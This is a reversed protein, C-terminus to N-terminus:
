VDLLGVQGAQQVAESRSSAGLKRYISIAESKVTTKSVHLRQGIEAFSLHTMLLPLLRLEATSLASPGPLGAWQWSDFSRRVDAVEECLIGLDPRQGLIDAIESLLVQAGAPDSLGLCVRALELRTQVALWPVAWTLVPRLRQTRTLQRRALDVDGAHIACHASAAFTIASLSLEQLGAAEVVGLAREVHGTAESWDGRSMAILSRETLGISGGPVGGAALSVGEGIIPDAADLDGSLLVSIGLLAVAAGRWASEEPERSAAEKADELMQAVGRRCMLARLFHVPAGRPSSDAHDPSTPMLASTPDGNPLQALPGREAADAWWEAVEPEGRFAGVYISVMALSPHHEFVDKPLQNLWGHLTALRGTRFLALAHQDVLRAARDADGAAIWHPFADKPLGHSELWEAARRHLKPLVDPQHRHVEAVLVDRFLRHYRYWDRRRDLAVVFRNSRELAELVEASGERDLTADCLPGCMRELISSRTLFEVEGSPLHSLLEAWLYDVAFRDSGDFCPRPTRGRQRKLSLSALYIGAPWGETERHIQESESQPPDVGVGRMLASASEHDLALDGADLELVRGETRWRALPVRPEERGALVLQSGHPLHEVVGILVSTCERNVIRHVDDLVLVVSRKRASVASGLRPVVTDEVSAGPASLSALLHPDVAESRQLAAALYSVLAVPDNESEDLSLWGFSRGDVDAWLALLTTKGYGPPAM